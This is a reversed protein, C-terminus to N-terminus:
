GFRNFGGAFCGPGLAIAVDIPLYDAAHVRASEKSGFVVHGVEFEYKVSPKESSAM